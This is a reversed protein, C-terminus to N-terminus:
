ARLAEALGGVRRALWAVIAAHSAPDAKELSQVCAFAFAPDRDARRLKRRLRWPRQEAPKLHVLALETDVIASGRALELHTALSEPRLQASHRLRHGITERLLAPHAAFFDALTTSRMPYPCHRLRFCREPFGALRASLDQAKSETPLADAQRRAGLARALRKDWRRCAQLEWRGRVVVRDDRFFDQPAVPRLLMFDDNFYLHRDAIGPIRWFLSSISRSNFTPLFEEFGRYIERHDVLRVRSEWPTGRLADLAAPRQADTVVHITRLWPAHRIISALCWGLEGDDNFRTPDAAVPRRCGLSALHADLRARHAPDAGDVWPIVADIPENM